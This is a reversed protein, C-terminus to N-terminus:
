RIEVTPFHLIKSRLKQLSGRFNINVIDSDKEAPSEMIGIQDIKWLITPDFDDDHQEFESKYEYPHKPQVSLLVQRLVDNPKKSNIRGTLVKGISTNLLNIHKEINKVSDIFEWCIDSGILIDVM